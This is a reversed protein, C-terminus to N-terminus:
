GNGWRLPFDEAGLSSCLSPVADEALLILSAALETELLGEVAVGGEMGMRVSPLCCPAKWDSWPGGSRNFAVNEGQLTVSVVM